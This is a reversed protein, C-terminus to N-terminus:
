DNFAIHIHESLWEQTCFTARLHEAVDLPSTVRGSATMENQDTLDRDHDGAVFSANLIRRRKKLLGPM